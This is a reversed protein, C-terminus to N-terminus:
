KKPLLDVEWFFDIWSDAIKVKFDPCILADEKYFISLTKFECKPFRKELLAKVEVITDGSDVIDDIIVVKKSTSLDPINSIDITELKKENDYHVSNISYVERINMAQSLLHGLVFGGRAVPVLTDPKYKYLEKLLLKCDEICEKYSYYIREM